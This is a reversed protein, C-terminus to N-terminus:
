TTNRIIKRTRCFRTFQDLYLKLEALTRPVLNRAEEVELCERVCAQITSPGAPLCTRM